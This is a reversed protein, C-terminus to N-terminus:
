LCLSRVALHTTKWWSLIILSHPYSGSCSCITDYSSGWNPRGFIKHMCVSDTDSDREGPPTNTALKPCSLTLLFWLSVVFMDLLFANVMGGSGKKRVWCGLLQLSSFLSGLPIGSISQTKRNVLNLIGSCCSLASWLRMWESSEVKLSPTFHSKFLCKSLFILIFLIQYNFTVLFDHFRGM